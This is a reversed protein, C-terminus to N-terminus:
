TEAGGVHILQVRLFCTTLCTRKATSRGSPPEAEDGPAGDTTPGLTSKYARESHRYRSKHQDSRGTESPRQWLERLVLTIFEFPCENALRVEVRWTDFIHKLQLPDV